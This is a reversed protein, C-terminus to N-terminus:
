PQDMETLELMYFSSCISGEVAPEISIFLGNSSSRRTVAQATFAAGWDPLLILVGLDVGVAGM